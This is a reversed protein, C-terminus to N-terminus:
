VANEQQLHLRQYITEPRAELCVLFGKQMAQRNAPDMIAGGGTAIVRRQGACAEQVVERELRRFSEEGEEEFIRAIPKGVRRVIERDTDLFEWGLLRAVAEGVQSKGTGSFGTIVINEM